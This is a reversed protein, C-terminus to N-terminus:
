AIALEDTQAHSKRWFESNKALVADPSVQNTLNSFSSWIITPSSQYTTAVNAWVNNIHCNEVTSVDLWMTKTGEPELHSRFRCKLAMAIRVMTSLEFNNRGSLLRTVMGPRVELRKSLETKNVGDKEMKLLVERTFELKALEEWYDSRKEAQDFFQDFSDFAEFQPEKRQNM